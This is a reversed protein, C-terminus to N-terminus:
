SPREAQADAIANLIDALQRPHSTMVTHGADEIVRFDVDPGLNAAMQRALPPPVPEDLTMSVYTIPIGSPYGSLHANMLAPAEPVLQAYQAAWAEDDIGTGFLNRALPEPLVPMEKSPEGTMVDAASQAKAPILAGVYALAAIREPHRAATETITVGGLSHAVLVFRAFGAADAEDLVASVCDDLSVTAVDAPRSGRGPLDVARVPHHLYPLVPDWCWSGHLGGHVLVLPTV